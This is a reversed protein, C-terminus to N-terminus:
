LCQVIIAGGAIVVLMLWAGRPHIRVAHTVAETPHGGPCSSHLGRNYRLPPSVILREATSLLVGKSHQNCAVTWVSLRFTCEVGSGM